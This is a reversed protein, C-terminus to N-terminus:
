QGLVVIIIINLGKQLRYEFLFALRAIKLMKQSLNKQFHSKPGGFDLLGLFRQEDM